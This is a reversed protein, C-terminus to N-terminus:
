ADCSGCGNAELVRSGQLLANNELVVSGSEGKSYRTKQISGRCCTVHIQIHSVVTETIGVALVFVSRTNEQHSVVHGLCPQKQYATTLNLVHTNGALTQHPLILLPGKLVRAATKPVFCIWTGATFNALNSWVRFQALSSVWPNRVDHIINTHSDKMAQFDSGNQFGWSTEGWPCGSVRM